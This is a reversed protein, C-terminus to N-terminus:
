PWRVEVWGRTAASEALADLVANVAVGEELGPRYERGGAVAELFRALQLAFSSHWGLSHKAWFGRLGPHSRELVRVRKLGRSTGPERYDALWLEDPRELNFLLAGLRGYLEVAMYNQRGPLVRAAELVGLVDGDFELLAAALDENTVRARGGAAPREGIVTRRAAAVRRIPGLLEIALEVVHSGNDGAVGYGAEEASFRWAYPMDPSWAWDELFAGRFYVPEGTFGAHALRLMEQVAPLWRHNFGVGVTVGLGRVARYAELAEGLSRGLPKEVLVHRGRRAAEVTPELHLPNPLANVVVDVGPAAVAERWDTFWREFGYRRAFERARGPSGSYVAVPRPIVSGIRRAGWIAAAHARGAFGTGLLAVGLEEM